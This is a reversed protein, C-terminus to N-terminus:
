ISHIILYKKQMRKLCLKYMYHGNLSIVANSQKMYIVNTAKVIMQLSLQQKQM